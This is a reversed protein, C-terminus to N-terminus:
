ISNNEEYPEVHVDVDFIGFCDKLRKEVYDAIDHSQRVTFHPNMLVTVDLFVNTGLTRARMDAVERIGDVKLIEEAYEALKETDFGDSLYFASEQFIEFATKLIIIGVIVAALTDIWGMKVSAAFVAVATGISTLADSLNDKAAAMLASSNVKKSLSCNYWYVGFMVVASMLAVVAARLDPQEIPKDSFIRLISDFLVQLGVLLMIVSTLLSAVNEAKWHGYRHNNDPPKQSLRLGILVAVSAIVDTFNNLGDATLANSNSLSGVVLKFAALVVYATISVIAGREATKLEEYREKMM